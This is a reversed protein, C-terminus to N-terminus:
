IGSFLREKKEKEQHKKRADGQKRIEAILSCSHFTRPIQLQDPAKSKKRAEAVYCKRLIHVWVIVVCYM